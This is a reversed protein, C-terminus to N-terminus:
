NIFRIDFIHKMLFSCFYIEFGGDLVNREKPPGIIISKDNQSLKEVHLFVSVFQNM